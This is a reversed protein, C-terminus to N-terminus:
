AFHKKLETFCDLKKFKNDQIIHSDVDNSFDSSWQIFTSNDSTVKHLTWTNQMTSFTVSPEAMILDYSFKRKNESIETIRFTWVSKDAYTLEFESGVENCSGSNWKVGKVINPLWKDFQLSRVAEWVKGIPKLLVTSETQHTSTVVNMSSQTKQLDM